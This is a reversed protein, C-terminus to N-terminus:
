PLYSKLQCVPAIIALHGEQWCWHSIHTGAPTSGPLHLDKVKVVSGCCSSRTSSCSTTTNTVTTTTTIYQYYTYVETSQCQQNPSLLPIRGAFLQTNTQQHHRNSQLKARRIAGTTVVVEMM